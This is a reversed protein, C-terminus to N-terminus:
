RTGQTTLSGVIVSVCTLYLTGCVASTGMPGDYGKGWVEQYGIMWAQVKGSRSWGAFSNAAAGSDTYVHAETQRGGVSHVALHVAHLPAWPLTPGGCQGEPDQTPSHHPALESRHCQHWTKKIGLKDMPRLPSWIHIYTQTSLPANTPATPTQAM